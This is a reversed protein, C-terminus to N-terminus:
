LNKILPNISTLLKATLILKKLLKLLIALSDLSNAWYSKSTVKLWSLFRSSKFSNLFLLPLLVVSYKERRHEKIGRTLELLVSSSRSISDTAM